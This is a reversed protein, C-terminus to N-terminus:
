WGSPGHVHLLTTRAANLEGIPDDMSQVHAIVSEVIRERAIHATRLARISYHEVHMDGTLRMSPTTSSM